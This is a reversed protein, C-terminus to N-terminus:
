RKRISKLRAIQKESLAAAQSHPYMEIVKQYEKIAQELDGKSYYSQAVGWQAYLAWGSDPYNKVIKRHESIAQYQMGLVLYILAIYQESYVAERSEPYMSVVRLYETKAREFDRKKYYSQAIWYQTSALQVSEPYHELVKRYEKIARDYLGRRYYTWGIARQAIAALESHPAIEIIKQFTAITDDYKDLSEYKGAIRDLAWLLGPYDRLDTNLRDIAVQAENDKESEILFLIHTRPVDLRAKGAYSSGPYRQVIQQYISNAQEYKRSDECKEAIHYLTAPLALHRSFDKILKDLARQAEVDRGMLFYVIALNRQAKLACDTGPYDTTIMLYLDRAQEYKESKEYAAAICHIAGPLGPHGSLDAVLSDIAAKAKADKKSEILPLVDMMAVASQADSARDSGPHDTVIAQYIRKAKQYEQLMRYKEAIYWLAKSLDPHGTFDTNLKDIAALVGSPKLETLIVANMARVAFQRKGADLSNAYHQIQQYVYWAEVAEGPIGRSSSYRYRRVIEHLSDLLGSHESYDEILRGLARAAQGCSDIRFYLLVLNKQAALAEVTGPRDTIIKQYISEAQQYYGDKERFQALEIQASIDPGCGGTVGIFALCSLVLSIFVIRKPM